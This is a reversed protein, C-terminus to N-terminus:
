MSDSLGDDRFRVLFTRRGPISGPVMQDVTLHEVLQAIAPKSRRGSAACLGAGMSTFGKRMVPPVHTAASAVATCTHSHTRLNSPTLHTPPSTDTQAQTPNRTQAQYATQTRPHTPTNEHKPQKLRSTNTDTQRHMYFVARCM